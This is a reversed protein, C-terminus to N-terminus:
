DFDPNPYRYIPKDTQHLTECDPQVEYNKWDSSPTWQVSIVDGIGLHMPSFALIRYDHAHFLDFIRM